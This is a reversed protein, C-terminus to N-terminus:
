SFMGIKIFDKLEEEKLNVEFIKCYRGDFMLQFIGVTIVDDRPHNFILIMDGAITTIPPIANVVRIIRQALEGDAYLLVPSKFAAEGGQIWNDM